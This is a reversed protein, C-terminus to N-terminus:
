PGLFRLRFFQNTGNLPATQMNSGNYVTPSGPVPTWSGSTLDDSMELVFGGPVAPWKVALSDGSISTQISPTKVVNIANAIGVRGDGDDARLVLNSITQSVLIAGSWVGNVFNDSVQPSVPVGNTASLSVTGTFNTFV